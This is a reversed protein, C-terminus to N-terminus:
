RAPCIIGTAELEEDVNSNNFAELFVGFAAQFKKEDGTEAAAVLEGYTDDSLKQFAALAKATEREEAPVPIKAIDADFDATLKSLEPQDELFEQLTPEGGGTIPFVADELKLCRANVAAVYPTEAPDEVESGPDLEESIGDDLGEDGAGGGDEDGCGAGTLLLVAILAIACRKRM